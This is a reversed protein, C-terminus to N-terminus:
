SKSCPLSQPLLKVVPMPCHVCSFFCHFTYKRNDKNEQGQHRLQLFSIVKWNDQIYFKYKALLDEFIVDEFLSIVIHLVEIASHDFKCKLSLLLYHYVKQKSAVISPAFFRNGDRDNYETKDTSGNRELLPPLLRWIMYYVTLPIIIGM